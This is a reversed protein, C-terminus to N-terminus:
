EKNKSQNAKFAKNKKNFQNFILYLGYFAIATVLIESIILTYKFSEVSIDNPFSDKKM